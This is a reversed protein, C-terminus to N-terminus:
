AAQWTPPRSPTSSAISSRKVQLAEAEAARTATVVIGEVEMEAGIKLDANAVAADTVQLTQSVRSYGVFDATVTYAGAPLGTFSFSGGPGSVVTRGTEAIRVSAGELLRGTNADTVTGRLDAAHAAGAGLAVLAAGGLLRALRHAHGPGSFHKTM